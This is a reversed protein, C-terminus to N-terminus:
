CTKLHFDIYYETSITISSEFVILPRISAIHCTDITNESIDERHSKPWDIDELWEM